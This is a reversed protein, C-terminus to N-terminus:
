NFGLERLRKRAFALSHADLPPPMNAYKRYHTAAEKKRGLKDLALGKSWLSDAYKPDKTLVQDFCGIAEPCRGLNVLANGKNHVVLLYNPDIALAKEFCALADQDRKLALLERGKNNWVTKQQPDIALTQDYCQIAEERRGMAALTFGKGHLALTYRPDLALARDYCGLAEQRRGLNGLANGKGLLACPSNPELALSQEFCHVAEEHRALYNLSSGKNSWALTSRPDIALATDYCGLGEKYQGQRSFATGKNNWAMALKPDIALAKDLCELSEKHRGLASLSSGKNNWFLAMNTKEELRPVELKKGTVRELIPELAERLEQFSSWREAASPRLCKEIIPDLLEDARPLRGTMQQEYTERMLGDLDGRYRTAFPPMSHGSAMQWLVLGFSYIDSRIDAGEGRYVEPAMYGPTGCRTNGATQSLSFSIGTGQAPGAAMRLRNSADLHRWAAEAATALGFDSIKLSGDRSILLNAPKIDRHCKIGRSQAHEMGICFQVAWKLTQAPDLVGNAHALHHALSIRGFQDPSIAEMEVFLRDSNQSVLHAALIFPNLELNVWLLAERQFAERAAPNAMLEDRFTKLALHRKQRRHFALYVVGMGGQGLCGKIEYTSGVLDGAQYPGVARPPLPAPTMSPPAPAVPKVEPEPKAKRGFLGGFFSKRDNMNKRGIGALQMGHGTDLDHPARYSRGDWLFYPQLFM